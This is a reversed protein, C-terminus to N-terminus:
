GGSHLAYRRIRERVEARPLRCRPHAALRRLSAVLVAADVLRSELLADFVWLVGHCVVNEREAERRLSADGALLPHGGTKALALAFADAVSLRPERRRYAQALEVGHPALAVVKLRGLGSALEPWNKLEREYLLDPVALAMPLEFAADLMGSRQLDVLVSSDSILLM